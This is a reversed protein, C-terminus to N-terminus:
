HLLGVIRNAQFRESWAQQDRFPKTGSDWSLHCMRYGDLRSAFMSIETRTLESAEETATTARSKLPFTLPVSSLRTHAPSLLTREDYPESMMEPACSTEWSAAVRLATVRHAPRWGWKVWTGFRNLRAGPGGTEWCRDIPFALYKTFLGQWPKGIFVGFYSQM